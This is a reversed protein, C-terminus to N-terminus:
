EAISYNQLEPSTPFVELFVLFTSSNPDVASTFDFKSDNRSLSAVVSDNFDHQVPTCTSGEGVSIGFLLTPAVATCETLKLDVSGWGRAKRFCAQGKKDGMPLPKLWLKFFCGPAIEFAPSVIQQDKGHLRRADVTFHVKLCGDAGYKELRVFERKGEMDALKEEAALQVPTPSSAEEFKDDEVDVSTTPATSALSHNSSSKMFVGPPKHPASLITSCEIQANERAPQCQGTWAPASMSCDLSFNGPPQVPATVKSVKACYTKASPHGVHAVELNREFQALERRQQLFDQYISLLPDQGPALSVAAAPPCTTNSPM